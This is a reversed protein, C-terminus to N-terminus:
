DGQKGEQGEVAWDRCLSGLSSELIYILKLESQDTLFEPALLVGFEM